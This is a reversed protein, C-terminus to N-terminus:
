VIAYEQLADPPLSSRGGGRRHTSEPPIQDRGAPGLLAEPLASFGAPRFRLPRAQAAAASRSEPRSRRRTHDPGPRPRGTEGCEPPALSRTASWVRTCRTNEPTREPSQKDQRIVRLFRWAAAPHEALGPETRCRLSRRIASPRTDM